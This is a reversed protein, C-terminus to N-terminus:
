TERARDAVSAILLDRSKGIFSTRIRTRIAGSRWVNTRIRNDSKNMLWTARFLESRTIVVSLERGSAPIRRRVM